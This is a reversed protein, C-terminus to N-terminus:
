SGCAHVTNAVEVLHKICISGVNGLASTYHDVDVAATCHLKKVWWGICAEQLVADLGTTQEAKILMSVFLTFEYRGRHVGVYLLPPDALDQQGPVDSM